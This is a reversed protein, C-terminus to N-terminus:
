WHNAEDNAFFGKLILYIIWIIWLVNSETTVKDKNMSLRVQHEKNIFRIVGCRLFYNVENTQSWM